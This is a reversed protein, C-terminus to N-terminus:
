VYKSVCILDRKKMIHPGAESHRNRANQKFSISQHGHYLLDKLASFTVLLGFPEGSDLTGLDIQGLVKHLREGVGIVSCM